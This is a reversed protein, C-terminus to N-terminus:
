KKIIKNFRAIYYKLRTKLIEVRFLLAQASLLDLFFSLSLRGSPMKKRDLLLDIKKVDILDKAESRKRKMDYIINLAVFKVGDFYFYNLPDSIIDAIEIDYYKAEENHSHIYEGGNLTKCNSHHLYDLDRSDRIGFASLVSSGDICYNEINHKGNEFLSKYQELFTYFNHFYKIKAYNLFYVSNDNLLVQSLRISENQTDTIHVSHKGLNFLERIEEKARVMREVSSNIVFVRAIGGGPFCSSAKSNAGSFGTKWSGLWEEGAYMQRMLLRAGFKNIHVEKRYFITGWHSFINEINQDKGSASPYVIAVFSSPVLKCYEIAVPDIYKRKLGRNLFFKYDYVYEKNKSACVKIKTNFYLSAAIRHAGDFPIGTLGLPIPEAEDLYGNVKISEITEKFSSIFAEKGLKDAGDNEVFGNFAKIHENYLRELWDSEEKKIFHKVSMYKIIIDIRSTLPLSMPHVYQSSEINDDLNGVLNHNANNSETM